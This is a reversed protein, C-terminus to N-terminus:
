KGCQQERIAAETVANLQAWNDAVLEKMTKRLKKILKKVEKPTLEITVTKKKSPNNKVFDFDITILDGLGSNDFYVLGVKVKSQKEKTTILRM